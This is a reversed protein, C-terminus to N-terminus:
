LYFDDNRKLVINLKYDDPLILTSSLNFNTSNFIIQVHEYDDLSFKWSNQTFEPYNLEEEKCNNYYICVSEVNEIRTLSIKEVYQFGERKWLQIPLLFTLQFKNAYSPLLQYTQLKTTM